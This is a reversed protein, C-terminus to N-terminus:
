LVNEGGGGLVGYGNITVTVGWEEPRSSLNAKQRQLSAWEPCKMYISDFLTSDKHRFGEYTANDQFSSSNFASSLASSLFGLTQTVHTLEMIIDAESRM